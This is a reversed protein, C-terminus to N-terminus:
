EEEKLESKYKYYTNRSIGIIKMLDKDTYAGGFDKSKAKIEAKALKSKKTERHSGAVCGIQKGRARAIAIGEKTRQRLDQVEKEAQEFAITIQQKALEHLYENVAQLIIDVSNGTLSVSEKNIAKKYVDTDLYHEKLFILNIGKNYLKIYQETGESASRSMRSVSDFIITDGEKIRSLLWRWKPRELTRGTWAETLLKATPEYALINRMQREISQEKRSIRCYGYIM